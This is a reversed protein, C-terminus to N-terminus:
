ANVGGFLADIMSLQAPDAPKVPSARKIPAPTTKAIASPLRTVRAPNHAPKAAETIHDEEFYHVVWGFVTADDVCVSSEGQAIKRAEGKCYELAGNLTKKGANIKEILVASANTQLYDLLRQETQNKATLTTISM